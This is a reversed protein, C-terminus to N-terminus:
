YNVVLLETVASRASGKGGNTRNVQNEHIVFRSDSWSQRIYECDAQSVAVLVGRDTCDNVWQVLQEQSKKGFALPTYGTFSKPNDSYYPPDCYIFDGNHPSINLFSNSSFSCSYSNNLFLSRLFMIHERDVVKPNTYDGMPVNFQGNKNVRYLGNFCTKNLYLFRAADFTDCVGPTIARIAEYLQKSHDSEFTMAIDIFMDPDDRMALYCNILQENIDSLYVEKDALREENLLAIAVAGGGLFPEYYDNFDDAEPFHNLLFNLSRTKGGTWKLFPKAYPNTETM